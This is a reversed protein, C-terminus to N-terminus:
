QMLYRCEFIINNYTQHGKNIISIAELSDTVIELPMLNHITALKLSELIALLEAQILTIHNFAKSFGM